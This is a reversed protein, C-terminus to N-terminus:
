KRKLVFSSIKNVNIKDTVIELIETGAKKNNIYVEWESEPLNIEVDEHRANHIIFIDKEQNTSNSSKITYAIINEPLNEEFIINKEVNEQTLMRLGPKNKRFNILGKYYEYM